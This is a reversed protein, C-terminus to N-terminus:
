PAAQLLEGEVTEVPGSEASPEPPTVAPPSEEPAVPAVEPEPAPAPKAARRKKEAKAEAKKKRAKEKSEQATLHKPSEDALAVIEAAPPTEPIAPEPEVVQTETEPPIEAAAEEMVPASKEESVPHRAVLIQFLYEAMMESASLKVKQEHAMISSRMLNVAPGFHESQPDYMEALAIGKEKAYAVHASEAATLVDLIPQLAQNKMFDAPSDTIQPWNLKLDGREVAASVGRVIIFFRRGHQLVTGLFHYRRELPLDNFVPALEVAVYCKGAELTSFPIYRRNDLKLAGGAPHARLVDAFVFSRAWYRQPSRVLEIAEVPKAEDSQALAPSNCFAAVMALVVMWTRKNMDPTGRRAKRMANFQKWLGRGRSLCAFAPKPSEVDSLQFELGQVQSGPSKVEASM